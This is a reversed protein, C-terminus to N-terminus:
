RLEVDLNYQSALRRISIMWTSPCYLSSSSSSSEKSPFYLWPNQTTSKHYM